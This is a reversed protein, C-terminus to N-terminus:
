RKTKLPVGLACGPAASQRMLAREVLWTRPAQRSSSAPSFSSISRTSKVHKASVKTFNCAALNMRSLKISAGPPCLSRLLTDSARQIAAVSGFTETGASTSKSETRHRSRLSPRDSGGKRANRHAANNITLRLTQPLDGAKEFRSKAMPLLRACLTALRDRAADLSEPHPLSTEEVSITKALGTSKVPESDVGSVAQWIFRAVQDNGIADFVGSRGLASRRRM